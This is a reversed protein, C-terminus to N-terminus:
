NLSYNPCYQICCVKFHYKRLQLELSCPTVKRLLAMAPAIKPAFGAANRIQSRHPIANVVNAPAFWQMFRGHIIITSARELGEFIAARIVPCLQPRLDAPEHTHAEFFSFTDILSVCGPYGPLSFQVCNRFPVETSGIYSAVEMTKSPSKSRVTSIHHTLLVNCATSWRSLSCGPEMRGEAQKAGEIKRPPPPPPHM